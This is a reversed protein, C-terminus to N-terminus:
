WLGDPARRGALEALRRLTGATCDAPLRDLSFFGGDLIERRDPRHPVSAFDRVVYFAVHDRASAERNWYLGMLAPPGTLELGAEERLERALAAEISEGVDVGGGPLYWGPVYSHEVLFVRGEADLVAARVGLTMARTLRAHLMFLPKLRRGMRQRLDKGAATM